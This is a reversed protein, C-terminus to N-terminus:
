MPLWEFGHNGNIEAGSKVEAVRMFPDCSDAVAGCDMASETAQLALGVPPSSKPMAVLGLSHSSFIATAVMM